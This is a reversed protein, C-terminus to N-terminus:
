SAAPGQFLAVGSRRFVFVLLGGVVFGGVHAWWATGDNVGMFIFVFQTLIWAGIVWYAALKLPLRWLVLVWMRVRPYLMLYAGIVGATAGSAGILPAESLVNMYAHALGAAVGCILYFVFFRVPGMADEVNDGFVWLFLMNGALHMWDGHLFMYSVLTLEPPLFQIAAPLQSPGFISMPIMGAQMATTDIGNAGLSVQYLFALVNMVILAATAWQFAIVRKPNDDYLPVFVMAALGKRISIRACFLQTEQRNGLGLSKLM